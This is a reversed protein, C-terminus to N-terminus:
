PASREARVAIDHVFPLPLLTLSGGTAQLEDRRVVDGTWTDWWEVRWRSEPPAPVSVRIGAVADPTDGDLDSRWNSRPNHFWALLLQDSRLGLVHLDPFRSSRYRPFTVRTIQLWDGEANRVVLRHPGAPVDVTIEEDYNSVWVGWRELWTSRKWPGSGEPGSTLPRDIVTHQDVDIQLRASTCVEGLQFRVPGAHPMDVHWVLETHLEGPRGRQPSGITMAVPAGEVVGDHRVRYEHAPTAGWQLTGPVMLDSFTEQHHAAHEVTFDDVPAFPERHWAVTDAFKRVPTLVKYLDRPHVYSDWYWIMTTGAAGSMLSAWAGHHLNRGLGRPDWRGDDTRWDIGFEALLYPKGFARYERCEAAIRPTFDAINAQGYMHSMTFDIHPNAWIEPTGYTTSM